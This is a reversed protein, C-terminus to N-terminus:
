PKSLWVAARLEEEPLLRSSYCASVWRQKARGEREGKHVSSASSTDFSPSPKQRAPPAFLSTVDTCVKFGVKLAVVEVQGKVVAVVGDSQSGRLYVAGFHLARCSKSPGPSASSSHPQDPWPLASWRHLHM